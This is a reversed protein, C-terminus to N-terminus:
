CAGTFVSCGHFPEFWGSFRPRRRRCRFASFKAFGQAVKRRPGLLYEGERSLFGIVELVLKDTGLVQEKPQNFEALAGRHSHESPHPEIEFGYSQFDLFLDSWARILYYVSANGGVRRPYLFDQRKSILFPLCEAM